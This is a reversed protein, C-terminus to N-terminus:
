RRAADQPTSAGSIRRGTIRRPSIRILQRRPGGAWPTAVLALRQQQSWSLRSAPGHVVVSWASRDAEDLDDVELAVLEQREAAQLKPGPGSRVLVDGALLVYNVPVIDPVRQRAIYALRGVSSTGLLEWCTAEPLVSVLGAADTPTSFDEGLLSRTLEARDRVAAHLVSAAAAANAVASCGHREALRLLSAPVATLDLRPM